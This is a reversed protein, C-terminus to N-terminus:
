DVHLLEGIRQRGDTADASEVPGHHGSRSQSLAPRTPPPRPPTPRPPPPRAPPPPPPTPPTPPPPTPTPIAPTAARGAAAQPATVPQAGAPQALEASVPTRAVVPEHWTGVTRDGGTVWATVGAVTGLMLVACAGFAIGAKRRMEVAM